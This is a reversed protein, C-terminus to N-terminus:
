FTQFSSTKRHGIVLFRYGTFDMVQQKRGFWFRGFSVERAGSFQRKEIFVGHCALAVIKSYSRKRSDLSNPVREVISGTVGFPLSKQQV